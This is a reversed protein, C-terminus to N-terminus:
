RYVPEAPTSASFATIYFSGVYNGVGDLSIYITQGASASVSILPMFWGCFFNDDGCIIFNNTNPTGPGSPFLYASISADVLSVMTACVNYTGAAPAIFKYWVTNYPSGECSPNAMEQFSAGGTSCTNDGFMPVGLTLLTANVPYDNPPSCNAQFCLQFTGQNYGNSAWFRIY